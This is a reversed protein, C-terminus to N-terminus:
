VFRLQKEKLLKDIEEIDLDEINAITEGTEINYIETADLECKKM